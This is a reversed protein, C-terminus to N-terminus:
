GHDAEEFALRMRNALIWSPCGSAPVKINCENCRRDWTPRHRMTLEAIAHDVVKIGTDIKGLAEPEPEVVEEPTEEEDPDSMPTVTVGLRFGMGPFTADLGGDFHDQVYRGVAALVMDTRETKSRFARGSPVLDGVYIAARLSGAQVVHETDTM